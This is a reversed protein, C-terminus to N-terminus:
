GDSQLLLLQGLARQKLANTSQWAAPLSAQTRVSMAEDFAAVAKWFWDKKPQGTGLMEAQVMMAYGLNHKAMAWGAPMTQKDYVEVGMQAARIAKELAVGGSGRPMREGLTRYILSANGQTAAWALSGPEIAGAVQEIAEAALQLTNLGEDGLQCQGLMKLGNALNNQVYLWISPMTERPIVRLADRAVEVTRQAVAPAENRPSIPALDGLSTVLPIHVELWIAPDSEHTIQRLVDELEKVALSLLKFAEERVVVSALKQLSNAHVITGRAWEVNKGESSFYAIAARATSEAEELLQRGTGGLNRVGLAILCNALNISSRAWARPAGGETYVSQAMRAHDVGARLYEVGDSISDGLRGYAVVLGDHAQAWEMPFAERSLSNVVELQLKVAEKLSDQAVEAKAQYSQVLIANALNSVVAAWTSPFSARPLKEIVKRLSGIAELAASRRGENDGRELLTRLASARNVMALAWNEVEGFSLSSQASREAAEAAQRLLEDGEEGKTRGGMEMLVAAFNSEALAVIDNSLAGTGIAGVLAERATHHAQQSELSPVLSGYYMWAVGINVQTLAWATPSRGELRVAAPELVEIAARFAKESGNARAMALLMEGRKAAAEASAVDDIGSLASEAEAFLREADLFNARTAAISAEAELLRGLNRRDDVLRQATRAALKERAGRVASQAAGLDFGGTPSLARQAEGLADDVVGEVASQERLKRIQGRSRELNAKSLKAAENLDEVGVGHGTLENLLGLLEDKTSDLQRQLVEMRADLATAGGMIGLKEAIRELLEGQSSQRGLIQESHDAITPLLSIFPDVSTQWLAVAAVNSMLQELREDTTRVVELVTDGVENGLQAIAVQFAVQAEPYRKPSKIIEGFAAFVLDGFARVTGGPSRVGREAFQLVLQPIENSPWGTLRGVTNAFDRTVTGGLTDTHSLIFKATGKLVEAVNGDIPSPPLQTSLDFARLRERRLEDGLLQAFSDLDVNGGTRASAQKAEQMVLLCAEIWALRVARILDHNTSISKPLVDSLRAAAESKWHSPLLGVATQPLAGAVLDVLKAFFDM